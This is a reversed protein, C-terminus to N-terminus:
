VVRPVRAHHPSGQGNQPLVPRVVVRIKKPDIALCGSLSQALHQQVQEGLAPWNATGDRPEIEAWLKLKKPTTSGKTHVCSRKVGEVEELSAAAASEISQRTIEVKGMNRNVIFMHRKSPVSVILVLALLCVAMFFLLIVSLALPLWPYAAVWALVQASLWPIVTVMSLVALLGCMLGLAVIFMLIRLLVKM